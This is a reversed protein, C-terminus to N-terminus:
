DDDSEHPWPRALLWATFVSALLSVIVAVVVWSPLGFWIRSEDARWFWPVAFALLLLYVLPPRVTM